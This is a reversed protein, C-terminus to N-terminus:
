KLQKPYGRCNFYNFDANSTKLIKIIEAGQFKCYFVMSFLLLGIPKTIHVIYFVISFLLFGMSKKHKCYLQFGNFIALFRHTNQYKCNFVMSFLLFGIHTKTNEISFWEFSCFFRHTKQYKCNSVMSFLLFGMLKQHKCYFVM